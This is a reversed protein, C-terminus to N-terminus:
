EDSDSEDSSEMIIRNEDEDEAEKDQDACGTESGVEIEPLLAPPMQEGNFWIIRFEGDVNEWGSTPTKDLDQQHSSGWLRAVFASRDIHPDLESECPPISSGAINKLKEFPKKANAKGKYTKEVVNFRHKNLPVLKRAGYLVCVFDRLTGIVEETPVTHSLSALAGQFRDSESIVTFPRNKGKRSFASTYDCGTLAHLGPLAACMSNGIAAAIKTVNVYRQNGKGKTGVEMWVTVTSPVRHVHHLLLVLIDTDSARIVIDGPTSKAAEVMHLIVRTDSEPHNCRLPAVAESKIEGDEVFYRTCNEMVGLFVERGDLLSEYINRSWDKRLFIPLEKKFSEKELQKKFAADRKQQPGNIVLEGGVIAERRDRECDKISPREYTDFTIDIRKSRYGLCSSLINRSLGGYTEPQDPSMCHLQFNGDIIHTGVYTPCGHESVREELLTFLKSKDTHAMMGDGNCMTLPVPTLPFSFVHELDINKTAATFAIRGLLASTCKLQAEKSNKGAKRNVVGESAFTRLPHKRIPKEFREASELCEKVFSDHRNKGDEPVMLLSTSTAESTSKGTSINILPLNTDLTFPNACSEIQNVIKQLDENDRKIRSPSLDNHSKTNGMGVATLAENVLAARSSKTVSWRLRSSYNNTSSTYGTMRSAADANVTQELTLDVPIRAFENDTRRVSFGGEELIQRLGPHSDQLNMLDLQYKSMWRAYNLRNTAFFLDIIPTLMTIFLDIDTERVSREVIHYIQIYRIYMAWFQATPGLQGSEAEIKFKEFEEFLEKFPASDCIRDVDEKKNPPVDMRLELVVLDVNENKKMFQRFLLTEFALALMPHLRKCRNYNKCQIFGNLSGPALVGSDTLMAPGGSEEIVRGIARFFCMLIHFVGFMVFVTEFEPKSTVQIRHAVRAVDLDYTALAYQQGCEKACKLATRMTDAVVANTTIPQNMNPMYHVVQKPLRDHHLRTNFGNWMPVSDPSLIHSMLFITDLMRARSSIDPLNRYDTSPYAFQDLKPKKRYPEVDEPLAELKRKRKKILTPLQTDALATPQATPQQAVVGTANPDINQYFIGMTDHLSDFGSLTQVLEDYNDFANGMVPGRMAGSPSSVQRSLITTALETDLEEFTSYSICHGLRNLVTMLKRSGTLSHVLTGLLIHKKPKLEGNRVIYLADESASKARRNTAESSKKGGGFLTRFFSQVLEPAEGEGRTLSELDLPDSCPNREVNKLHKRLLLAAKLLQCEESAQFDYVVKIAKYDLRSHHVIAGLKKASPTSIEVENQFHKKLIEGLYESRCIPDEEAAECLLCYRDFISMLREPRSEQIVHLKVYDIIEAIAQREVVPVQKEVTPRSKKQESSKLRSAAAIAKKRCSHHFKVEKAILDIGSVKVLVPGGLLKASEYIRDAAEKTEVCGLGEKTGGVNKWERDCYLCENPFLGLRSEKKPRSCIVPSKSRLEKSPGPQQDDDSKKAQIATFAGYCRSHYGDVATTASPLSEVVARYKSDKYRPLQKRAAAAKQINKWKDETVRLIPGSEKGLVHVICRIPKPTREIESFLFPGPKIRSHFM